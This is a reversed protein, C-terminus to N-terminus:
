GRSNSNELVHDNTLAVRVTENNRKQVSVENSGLYSFVHEVYKSDGTNLFARYNLWSNDTPNQRMSDEDIHELEACTKLVKNMNGPGFNYTQLALPINYHNSEINSRLIMSGIQINTEINNLKDQTIKVTETQGTEFNYASISNDIWIAKEVQMIGAAPKQESLNNYHDGRSEQAALAILLNKDLGYRKAYKEFLDDYRKANTINQNTSRDEFSFHFSDKQFMSNLDEKTSKQEVKEETKEESKEEELQPEEQLQMDFQDLIKEISNDETVAQEVVKPQYHEPEYKVEQQKAGIGHSALVGILSAVVLTKGITVNKRSLKMKSAIKGIVRLANKKAMYHDFEKAIAMVDEKIFGEGGVKHGHKEAINLLKIMSKEKRVKRYKGQKHIDAVFKDNEDFYFEIYNRM